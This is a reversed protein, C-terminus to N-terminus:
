SFTKGRFTYAYQRPKVLLTLGKRGIVHVSQGVELLCGNHSQANWWSGGIKVRYEGKAALPKEVVCKEALYRNEMRNFDILHFPAEFVHAQEVHGNNLFATVRLLGLM